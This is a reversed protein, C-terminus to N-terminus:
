TSAPLSGSRIAEMPKLPLWVTFITGDSDSKASISGNHEEVIKKCLTLGIGIGYDKTTYFPDFFKQIEEPPIVRGGNQIKLEFYQNTTLEGTQLTRDNPVFAATDIRIVGHEPSAEIANSLLNRLLHQFRDPDVSVNGLGAAFHTQIQVDKERFREQHVKLVQQIFSNPNITETQIIDRRTFDILAGLIKELRQVEGIIVHFCEQQGIPDHSGSEEFQKAM